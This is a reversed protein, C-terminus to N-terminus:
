GEGEKEAVGMKENRFKVREREREREREIQKESVEETGRENVAREVM